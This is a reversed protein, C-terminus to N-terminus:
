KRPTWHHPSQAGVAPHTPEVLFQSGAHQTARDFGGGFLRSRTRENHLQLVSYGPSFGEEGTGAEPM